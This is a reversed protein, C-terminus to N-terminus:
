SPSIHQGILVKAAPKLTLDAHLVGFNDEDIALNTGRDRLEFYILPGAWSWKQVLRRAQMVAIAQDIESVADSATGTPAGFETIWVKKRGEGHRRMVEHLGPVDDFGGVVTTNTQSPLSPFSYPHIAIADAVQATGNGYLREVFTIQSIRSGNATDTGRTLGGILLTAVPDVARVAPVVARFLEGYRNADPAPQWFDNINPENWIEWSHVGLPGYRTAAARGFDAFDSVQQPPTSSTTGAPRAWAPTHSLIGLVSMRRASAEKVIADPYSWDFHRRNAEIASWDFDARVWTVRMAAMLDFERTITASDTNLIRAMIGIRGQGAAGWSLASVVLVLSLFVISSVWV